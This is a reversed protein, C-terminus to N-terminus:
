VVIVKDFMGLVVQHAVLLIPRSHQYKKIAEIVESTLDQDLNSTSEDLLLFPLNFRETFALTFALILRQLEGGSLSNYSCDRGKYDITINIEPKSRKKKKLEKYTSLKLMLPDKIFFEDLYIQVEDQISQIFTHLCISEAEKIKNRLMDAASCRKRLEKEEENYKQYDFNLKKQRNIETINIKYMEIKQLITKNKELKETIRTMQKTYKLLSNRIEELTKDPLRDKISKLDNTLKFVNEKNSKIKNKINELEFVEKQLIDKKELLDNEDENIVDTDLKISNIKDEDIHLQRILEKVSSSYDENDIKQQLSKRKKQKATNEHIYTSLEDIKELLKTYLKKDSKPLKSAEEKLIKLTSEKSSLDSLSIDLEELQSITEELEEQCQHKSKSTNIESAIILKRKQLRLSQDCAPCVLIKESLKAIRIENKQTDSIEMLKDHEKKTKALIDKDFYNRKIKNHIKISEKLEDVQIELEDLSINAEEKNQDEWCHLQNIADNLERLEINKLEKIKSKNCSIRNQLEKIKRQRRIKKLTKVVVKLKKEVDSDINLLEDNLQEDLDILSDIRPQLTEIKGNLIESNKELINGNKIKKSIKELDQSYKKIYDKIKEESEVKNTSKIPFKVLKTDNCEDLQTSLLELKYSVKKFEEEEKKFLEHTRSKIDCIDINHFALEEIFSLKDTPGMLVFSTNKGSQGLYGLTEFNTTFVNNIYGQAADDEYTVGGPIKVTLTNPRKKRIIVTGDNCIIKVICNKKGQTIINRGKGTLAFLVAELISSKGVGSSGSLLTIGETALQITKNEWCRFNKLTIEM